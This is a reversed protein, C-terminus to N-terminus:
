QPYVSVNMGERLNATDTLTVTATYRADGESISLSSIATVTGTLADRQPLADLTARVDTGVALTDLDGEDVEFQVCLADNAYLTVLTADKQVTQGSTQAVSVVVGDVPSQVQANAAGLNDITGTVTEFLLDGRQVTQGETVACTLISGEATVAVAAAKQVRAYSAIRKVTSFAEDRYISVKDEPDLNSTLVEVQFTRGETQTIIGVGTRDNDDSSRLYVTEGENLYRNGNHTSSSDYANATNTSVTYRGAPEVYCLAGYRQDVTAAADGPQARLGRVVGDLPAYVKTTLLTFLPDGAKVQDGAKLPSDALVGGFPARVTLTERYTVVGSYSVNEQQAEALSATLGFSIALTLLLALLKKMSM